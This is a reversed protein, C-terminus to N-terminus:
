RFDASRWAVWDAYTHPPRALVNEVTPAVTATAGVQSAFLALSSDVIGEPIGGRIMQERAVKPDQEEFRLDRGLVEGLIRVREVPTLAEPGTLEYASGVHGDDLLVRAAVEAIDREDIPVTVSEGYPARVVGEAKIGAVWRLDNVMFAGPRLFTWPLGSETVVHEIEAHIRGILGAQKMNVSSASLLVVRELGSGVAADVFARAQGPVPFLFARDAGRLAAPLTTPEGLDARLVEVGEPMDALDPRRSIARVTEGADVLSRVVHRGVNGTAGTVLIM